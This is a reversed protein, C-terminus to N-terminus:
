KDGEPQFFKAGSEAMSKMQETPHYLPGLQEYKEAMKCFQGLGIQDMYHLIGGRFPPFGIGYILAMDAEAPSAVI